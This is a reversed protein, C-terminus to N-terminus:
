NTVRNLENKFIPAVMDCEPNERFFDEARMTMDYPICNFELGSRESIYDLIDPVVGEFEGTKEDLFSITNLNTYLAVTIIGSNEAFETEEETLFSNDYSAGASFDPICSVLVTVCFLVSVLKSIFKM